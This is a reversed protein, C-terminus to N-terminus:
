IIPATSTEVVAQEAQKVDEGLKVLGDLAAQQKADLKEGETVRKELAAVAKIASNNAVTLKNIRNVIQKQNAELKTIKAEISSM